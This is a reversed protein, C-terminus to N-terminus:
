SFSSGGALAPPAMRHGFRKVEDLISFLDAQDADQCKHAM